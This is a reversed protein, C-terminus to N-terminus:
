DLCGIPQDTHLFGADSDKRCATLLSALLFRMTLGISIMGTRTGANMIMHIGM